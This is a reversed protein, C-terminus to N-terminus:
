IEAVSECFIIQEDKTPASELQQQKEGALIIWLRTTKFKSVKLFSTIRIFRSTDMNCGHPPVPPAPNQDHTLSSVFLSLSCCRFGMLRRGCRLNRKTRTMPLLRTSLSSVALFHKLGLRSLVPLTNCHGASVFSCLVSERHWSSNRFIPQLTFVNDFKSILQRLKFTWYTWILCDKWLWIVATLTIHQEQHRVWLSIGGVGCKVESGQSSKQSM